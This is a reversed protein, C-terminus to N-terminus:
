SYKYAIYKSIEIKIQDTDMSVSTTGSVRPPSAGNSSLTNRLSCSFEDSKSSITMNPYVRVSVILLQLLRSNIIKTAEFFIHYIM